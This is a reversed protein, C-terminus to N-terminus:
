PTPRERLLWPALWHVFLAAVYASFFFIPNSPPVTIFVVVFLAVTLGFKGAEARYFNSVYRRAQRGGRVSGLRWVFYLQPVLCVLGGALASSLAESGSALGAVLVMALVVLGQVVLLRRFSPRRRAASARRM